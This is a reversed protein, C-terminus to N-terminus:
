ARRDGQFVRLMRHRCAGGSPGAMTTPQDPTSRGQPKLPRDQRSGVVPLPSQVCRPHELADGPQGLVASGLRSQESRSGVTRSPRAGGKVGACLRGRQEAERKGREGPGAEKVLAGGGDRRWALTGKARQAEAM